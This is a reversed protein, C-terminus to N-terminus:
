LLDQAAGAEPQRRALSNSCERSQTKHNGQLKFSGPMDTLEAAADALCLSAFQYCSLMHMDAMSSQIICLSPTLSIVPAIQFAISASPSIHNHQLCGSKPSHIISTQM